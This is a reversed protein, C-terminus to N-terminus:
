ILSAEKKMQAMNLKRPKKNPNNVNVRVPKDDPVAFWCDGQQHVSLHVPPQIGAAMIRQILEHSKLTGSRPLRIGEGEKANRLCIVKETRHFGVEIHSSLVACLAANLTFSDTRLFHIGWKNKPAAVFWEFETIDYTKTM